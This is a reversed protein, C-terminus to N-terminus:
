GQRVIAKTPQNWRNTLQGQSAVATVVARYIPGEVIDALNTIVGRYVGDSGSAYTLTLPWTASGVETTGDPEYLTCVVSAVNQFVGLAKDKLGNLEVLNSNELNITLLAM